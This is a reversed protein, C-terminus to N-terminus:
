IPQQTFFERFYVDTVKDFGVASTVIRLLEARLRDLGHAGQIESPSLRTLMQWIADNIVPQQQELLLATAPEDLDLTLGLMLRMPLRGNEPALMVYLTPMEYRLADPGPEGTPAASAGGGGGGGGALAPAMPATALVLLTAIGALWAASRGAIRRPSSCALVSLVM